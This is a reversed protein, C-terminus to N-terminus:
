TPDKQANPQTKKPQRGELFQPDNYLHINGVFGISKCGQDLLYNALTFGAYLNDTIIGGANEDDYIHALFLFPKNTNKLVQVYEKSM